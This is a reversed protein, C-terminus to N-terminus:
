AGVLYLADYYSAFHDIESIRKSYAALKSEYDKILIPRLSIELWNESSRLRFIEANCFESLALLDRKEPVTSLRYLTDAKREESFSEVDALDIDM